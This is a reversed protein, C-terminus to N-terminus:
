FEKEHVSRPMSVKFWYPRELCRRGLVDNGRRRLSTIAGRSKFLLTLACAKPPFIQGQKWKLCQECPAKLM